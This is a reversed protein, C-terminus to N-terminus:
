RRRFAAFREGAAGRARAVQVAPAVGEGAPVLEGRRRAEVVALRVEARALLSRSGPEAPSVGQGAAVLEGRAGAQRLEARVEERSRAPGAALDAYPEPAEGAARLGGSAAAQLVQAKVEARTPGAADAARAELTAVAFTAAVVTSLLSVFFSHKATM